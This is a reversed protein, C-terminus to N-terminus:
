LFLLPNLFRSPLRPSTKTGTIYMLELKKRARTMAVYFIRREEECTEKDPMRGHPYINENCDPIIVRDFELGKSAHVTMLQLRCENDGDNKETNRIKEEYIEREINWENFSDYKKSETNLWEIIEAMEQKKVSNVAICNNDTLMKEYGISKLIYRVALHLPMRGIHEIDKKLKEVANLREARFPVNLNKIYYNRMASWIDTGETMVAERNIYRVPRNLIRLLCERKNPCISLELYAFVDKVIFHEYISTPKEKMVFPIDAATLYSAFGQMLIHTRFLVATSEVRELSLKDNHENTLENIINGYEEDRDKFKRIKVTDCPTEKASSPRLEKVFRNKNESIVKLSSNVIDATSRYNVNLYIEKADYRKKFDLMCEPLAGRFGYISQDDDGVAFIHCNEGKLLNVASMQMPNIDQFEDILIYQFRDQWKKLIYPDSSFMRYCDYVMDDFDILKKLRRENEYKKFCEDFLNAYEPLLKETARSKDNTNKYFSFASLLQSVNENETKFTTLHESSINYLIKNLINKKQRDSVINLKTDPMSQRLINYFISHFTGFNVPYSLDSQELFRNQMSLAADKTFTVVLISEPPIHLNRILYLIRQTIVFTKGSGPGAVVLLDKSAIHTVAKLQAENLSNLDPM